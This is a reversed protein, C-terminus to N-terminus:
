TANEANAQPKVEVPATTRVPKLERLRDVGYKQQVYELVAQTDRRPISCDAVYIQGARELAVPDVLAGQEAFVGYLRTSPLAHFRASFPNTALSVSEGDSVIFGDINRQRHVVSHKFYYCDRAIARRGIPLLQAIGYITAMTQAFQLERDLGAVELWVIRFEEESEATASLQSEAKDLVNSVANNYGTPESPPLIDGGNLAKDYEARVSKSDFKNKVEVVYSHNADRIRYDARECDPAMAVREVHFGLNRFTRDVFTETDM